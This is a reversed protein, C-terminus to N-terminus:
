VGRLSNGHGFQNAGNGQVRELGGGGVNALGGRARRRRDLELGGDRGVTQELVQQDAGEGGRGTLGLAVGDDRACPAQARKLAEGLRALERGIM